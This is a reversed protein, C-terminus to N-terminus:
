SIQVYGYFSSDDRVYRSREAVISEVSGPAGEVAVATQPAVVVAVVVVSAASEVVVQQKLSLLEQKVWPM